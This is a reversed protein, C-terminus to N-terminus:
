GCTVALPKRICVDLSNIQFFHFFFIIFLNFFTIFLIVAGKHYNLSIPEFFQKEDYISSESKFKTHYLVNSSLSVM